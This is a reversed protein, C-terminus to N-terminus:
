RIRWSPRAFMMTSSIGYASLAAVAHGLRLVVVVIICSCARGGAHYAPRGRRTTHEGAEGGNLSCPWPAFAPTRSEAPAERGRGDTRARRCRDARTRRGRRRLEGDAPERHRSEEFRQLGVVGPRLLDRFVVRADPGFVRGNLRRLAVPRDFAIERPRRRRALIRGHQDHVLVAAEIRVDFVHRPPERVAFKM